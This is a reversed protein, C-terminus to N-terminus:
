HSMSTKQETDLDDVSFAVRFDSVMTMLIKHPEEKFHKSMYEFGQKLTDASEYDVILHFDPLDKFSAKDVMCLIRYDLAYNNSIQSRMFSHVQKVLDEVCVEPKPCFYVHYSHM